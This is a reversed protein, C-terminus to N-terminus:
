RGRSGRAQSWDYGGSRPGPSGSWGGRGRAPACGCRSCQPGRCTLMSARGPAPVPAEGRRAHRVRPGRSCPLSVFKFRRDTWLLRRSDMSPSSASTLRSSSYRLRTAREQGHTKMGAPACMCSSGLLLAASAQQMPPTASQLSGQGRAAVVADPPDLPKGGQALQPDEVDAAVPYSLDFPELALPVQRIQPRVVVLSCQGQM